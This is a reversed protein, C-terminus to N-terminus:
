FGYSCIYCLASEGSVLIISRTAESRKGGIPLVNSSRPEHFLGGKLCVALLSSRVGQDMVALLGHLTSRWNTLGSLLGLDSTNPVEVSSLPSCSVPRIGSQV